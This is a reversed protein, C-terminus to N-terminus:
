PFLSLDIAFRLSVWLRHVESCGSSISLTGKSEDDLQSQDASPPETKETSTTDVTTEAVANSNPILMPERYFCEAFVFIITLVRGM